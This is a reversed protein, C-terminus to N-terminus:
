TELVNRDFIVQPYFQQFYTEKSTDDKLIKIARSFGIDTKIYASSKNTLPWSLTSQYLMQKYNIQERMEWLCDLKTIDFAKLPTSLAIFIPNNFEISKEIIQEL